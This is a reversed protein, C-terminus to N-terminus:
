SAHLPRPNADQQRVHEAFHALGGLGDPDCLSGVGVCVACAAKKGRGSDEEGDDEEEGEEEGEEDDEEEGSEEGESGSDGSDEDDQKASLAPDSILLVRMANPLQVMRYAKTDEVPKAAHCM